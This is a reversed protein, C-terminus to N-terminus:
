KNSSRTSAKSAAKIAAIERWIPRMESASAWMSKSKADRASASRTSGVPATPFRELAQSEMFDLCASLGVRQAIAVLDQVRELYWWGKHPKTRQDLRAFFRAGLEQHAAKLVGRFATRADSQRRKRHYHRRRDPLSVLPGWFRREGVARAHTAWFAKLEAALKPHKVGSFPSPLRDPKFVQSWPEQGELRDLMGMICLRLDGLSPPLAAVSALEAVTAIEEDDEDDSGGSDADSESDDVHPTKQELEEQSPMPVRPLGAPQLALTPPRPDAQPPQIAVPLLSIAENGRRVFERVLEDSGGCFQLFMDRLWFMNRSAVRAALFRFVCLQSHQSRETLQQQQMLLRAAELQHQRSAREMPLVAVVSVGLRVFDQLTHENGAYFDCLMRRLLGLSSSHLRSELFDCFLLLTLLSPM